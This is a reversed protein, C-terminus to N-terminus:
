CFLEKFRRNLLTATDQMLKEAIDDVHRNRWDEMSTGKVWQNFAGLAPGCHIQFDVKQKESGQLALQMTFFLYWRFVLAMKHKPNREAKEIEEPFNESFFQKTESYVAEFSRKFYRDQIQRRTKEDIEEWANYHRYLDYLKNARAPFFVGKRVVQVKAGLEFMDGAPAYDTDQVNIQQLIDKAADSTGGEVTCQNISGTMIFDADLVFAAAAAEPTGIGGAAGVSIRQAYGHKKAMEDRLRIMTPLLVTMNGQDTHGGSDSEVCLDDAMPVQKSLNAEEETIKHEALLKNVIGEPAPSLFAGAVEPRSIKAMIKHACSISETHDRRLGKLRYMVLPPTMQMYAAAEVNRIGYKLYLDILKDEQQPDHINSLLNMGYAQGTALAEQIYQIDKEIRALDLGGTGLYGMMGAKGMRVVLEKSAIGRVMAGTVYAYKLGYTKKFTESGLADPTIGFSKEGSAPQTVVTQQNDSAADTSIDLPEAEKRINRILNTLVSGPGVEEFEMAGAGMLYCISEKWKVSHTIQDALNAAIEAQRYPRAHVNSIIPLTLESFEVGKLVAEFADQASRMYRSHFAGSVNLAICTGGANNFINVAQRVDRELGSIVIQTPTNDNAIDIGNLNNESLISLIKEEALNLVAAMAGGSAQSMLESRKKVLKLGTEFDVGGAALLANYEGLSHGAVYDPRKGTEDLKKFYSLANVVYLAPQTYQTQNLQQHPDKLCLEKVSYGLIADAKAAFDAFADFLGGGMGQQQSGQGPFVWTVMQNDKRM